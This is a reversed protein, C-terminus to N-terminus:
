AKVVWITSRARGIEGDDLELPPARGRGGAAPHDVISRALVERAVTDFLPSSTTSGSWTSISGTPSRSAPPRACTRCTASSRVPWAGGVSTTTSPWTSPWWRPGTAPSPSAPRPGCGCSSRTGASSSPATTSRRGGGTARRGSRGGRGHRGGLEHGGAAAQVRAGLRPGLLKFNPVLEYALVDGLEGIAEVRDVNLEDEVVGAPPTPSGPPLYVLARALPQRVKIGAEARAARGLSSLRRALAM